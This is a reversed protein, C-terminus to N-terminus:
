WPMKIPYPAASYMLPDGGPCETALTADGNDATDNEDDASYEEEEEGM